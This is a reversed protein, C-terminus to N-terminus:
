KLALFSDETLFSEVSINDTDVSTGNANNVLESVGRIKITGTTCSSDITVKGAAMNLAITGASTARNLNIFKVKGYFGNFTMNLPSNDLDVIFEDKLAPSVITKDWGTYCNVLVTTDVYSSAEMHMPGVLLCEEFKCHVGWIEKIECGFYHTEGDQYGNVTMERFTTKSTTCGQTLTLKTNEVGNGRMEYGNISETAGITLNGIVFLINFGRSIAIAKADSFNSSPKQLTGIPYATGASGTSVSVYVMGNFAMHEIEPLQQVTSDVLNSVASILMVNYSGTTSIYPSDGDETYLNGNVNMTHNGEYPRIRWGNMLFYTVGLAKSGPLPDGGVARLAQLYKSNDDILLWEKWDSYIDTKVDIDVVGMVPTTTVSIIKTVGNFSVKM